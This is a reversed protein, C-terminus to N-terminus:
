TSADKSSPRPGLFPNSDAFAKVAADVEDKPIKALRESQKDLYYAM